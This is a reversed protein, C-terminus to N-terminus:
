RPRVGPKSNNPYLFDVGADELARRVLTLRKQHVTRVDGSEIRRITSASVGSARVLDNVSWALLGRAARVQADTLREGWLTDDEHDNTEAELDTETCIVIWTARDRRRPMTPACRLEFRGSDGNQLRIRCRTSFTTAGEAFRERVRAQDIPHIADLWGHEASEMASQGTLEQWRYNTEMKGDSDIMWFAANLAQLIADLRGESQIISSRLDHRDTVDRICGVARAPKGTSGLIVEARNSIWRLSGDPRVIRFERNIPQGSRITEDMYMNHPRDEPHIM